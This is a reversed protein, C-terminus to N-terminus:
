IFIAHVDGAHDILLYQMGDSDLRGLTKGPYTGLDLGDRKVVTEFDNNKWTTTAELNDLHEIGNEVWTMPTFALGVHSGSVAIAFGKGTEGLEYAGMAGARDWGGKLFVRKTADVVRTGSTGVLTLKIAPSAPAEAMLTDDYSRPSLLSWGDAPVDRHDALAFTGAQFHNAIIFVRPAYFGCAPASSQTAAALLAALVIAQKM